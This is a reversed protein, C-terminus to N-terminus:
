TPTGSSRPSIATFCPYATCTVTLWCQGSKGWIQPYPHTPPLSELQQPKKKKGPPSKSRSRSIKGSGSACNGWSFLPIRKIRSQTRPVSICKWIRVVLFESNPLSYLNFGFWKPKANGNNQMKLKQKYLNQVTKKPRPRQSRSIYKAARGEQM